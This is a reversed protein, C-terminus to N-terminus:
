SWRDWCKTVSSAPNGAAVPRRGVRLRGVRSSNVDGDQIPRYARRTSPLPSATTISRALEPRRDATAAASPTTQALWQRTACPPRSPCSRRSRTTASRQGNEHNTRPASPQREFVRISCSWRLGYISSCNRFTASRRVRRRDDGCKSIWYRQTRASRRYTCGSQRGGLM